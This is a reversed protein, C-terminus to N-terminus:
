NNNEVIIWDDALIDEIGFEYYYGLTKKNNRIRLTKDNQLMKLAEVINM